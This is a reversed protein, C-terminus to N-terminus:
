ELYFRERLGNYGAKESAGKEREREGWIRWGREGGGAMSVSPPVSDYLSWCTSLAMRAIRSFFGRGSISKEMWTMSSPVWTLVSSRTQLPLDQGAVMVM